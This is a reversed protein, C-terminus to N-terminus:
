LSITSEQVAVVTDNRYVWLYVNYSSQMHFKVPYVFIGVSQRTALGSQTGTKMGSATVSVVVKVGDVMDGNSKTLYIVLNGDGTIPPKPNTTLRIKLDEITTYSPATACAGVLLLFAIISFLLSSHNKM